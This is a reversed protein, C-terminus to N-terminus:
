VPKGALRWCKSGKAGVEGACSNCNYTALEAKIHISPTWAQTVQRNTEKTCWLAHERGATWVGVKHARSVQLYGWVFVLFRPMSLAAMALGCFPFLSNKLDYIQFLSIIQVFYKLVSFYYLLESLFHYHFCKTRWLIYVSFICFCFDFGCSTM